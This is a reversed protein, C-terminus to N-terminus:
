KWVRRAIVPTMSFVALGLINLWPFFQGDSMALILGLTFTVAPLYNPIEKVWMKLTILIVKLKERM